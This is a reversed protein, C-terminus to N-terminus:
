TRGEELDRAAALILRRAWEFSATTAAREAPLWASRRGERPAGDRVMRMLYIRIRQRDRPREVDVDDLPRVIEAAVGSEEEVERVAAREPTEGPEVHGKPLVWRQPRRRATVLLLEVAGDRLRYVLGGAHTLAPTGAGPPGGERM